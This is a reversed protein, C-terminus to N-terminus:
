CSVVERVGKALLNQTNQPTQKHHINSLLSIRGMILLPFQAIRVPKILCMFLRNLFFYFNKRLIKVLYLSIFELWFFPLILAM